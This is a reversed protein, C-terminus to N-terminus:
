EKFKEGVFSIDGKVFRYLWYFFAVATPLFLLEFRESIGIATIPITVATIAIALRDHKNV